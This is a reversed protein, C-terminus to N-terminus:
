QPSLILLVGDHPICCCQEESEHCNMCGSRGQGDLADEARGVQAARAQALRFERRVPAIDGKQLGFLVVLILQIQPGEVGARAYKDQLSKLETDIILDVEGTILSETLLYASGMTVAVAFMVLFMYGVSLCFAMTNFLAWRIM